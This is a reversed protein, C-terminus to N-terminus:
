IFLIRFSINNVETENKKCKKSLRQDVEKDRMLRIFCPRVKLAKQVSVNNRNNINGQEFMKLLTYIYIHTYLICIHLFVQLDIISKCINVSCRKM